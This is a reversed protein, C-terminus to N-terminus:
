RIKELVDLYARLNQVGGARHILNALDAFDQPHFGSSRPTPSTRAATPQSAAAQKKRGGKRTGNGKKWHKGKILSVYAATIEIGQGKLEEVIQNPSEIGRNLADLVAIVKESRVGPTGSAAQDAAAPAGNTATSAPQAKKKRVM